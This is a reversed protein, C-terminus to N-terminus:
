DSGIKRSADLSESLAAMRSALKDAMAGLAHSLAATGTGANSGAPYTETIFGSELLKGTSPNEIAWHADLAAQGHNDFEFRRVNIELQFDVHISRLWPYLVVRSIVPSNSLDQALVRPICQELPEAWQSTQSYEVRNAGVRTAIGARQLYEPINVPGLGVTLRRGSSSLVAPKVEASGSSTTLVFFRTRDPQPALLSSCGATAVIAALILAVPVLKSNM